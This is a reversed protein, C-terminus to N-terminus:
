LWCHFSLESGEWSRLRANVVVAGGDPATPADATQFFCTLNFLQPETTTFAEDSCDVECSRQPAEGESPVLANRVSVYHNHFEISDLTIRIRQEASLHKQARKGDCMLLDPINEIVEQSFLEDDCSLEAGQAEPVEETELYVVWPGKTTADYRGVVIDDDACVTETPSGNVYILVTGATCGDRVNDVVDTDAAIAGPTIIATCALLTAIRM